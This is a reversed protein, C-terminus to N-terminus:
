DLIDDNLFQISYGVFMSIAVKLSEEDIDFNPDHLAVMTEPRNLDATGVFAYVGPVKEIFEAMNDGILSPKKDTILNEKGFIETAVKQAELSAKNDNILASGYEGWEFSANCGYKSAITKSIEEVKDITEKRKKSSYARITGECFADEAIINYSVGGNIKGIGLLVSETPNESLFVLKHLETIIQSLVHIADAGLHPVSIHAAHGKIKIKFWDVSANNPGPVIAITGSKLYPWCHFSYSRDSGDLLGSNVFQKAGFGVEEGRQFCLKVKGSFLNRNKSLIKAATLLSATHADHGCAHMVGDVNSKYPCDRVEQIPLADIDSRLIIEKDIGDNKTGIIESYVGGDDINKVELGFDRLENEILKMTKFELKSVEPNQHLHRRTRIAYEFENNIEENIFQKINNM